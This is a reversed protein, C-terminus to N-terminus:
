KAPYYTFPDSSGGSGRCEVTGARVLMDCEVNVRQQYGRDGFIAEALQRQTRGPAKEILFQVIDLTTPAMDDGNTAIVTSSRTSTLIRSLSGRQTLKGGAWPEDCGM